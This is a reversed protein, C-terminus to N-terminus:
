LSNIEFYMVLFFSIMTYIFSAIMFFLAISYWYSPTTPKDIFLKYLIVISITIIAGLAFHNILPM